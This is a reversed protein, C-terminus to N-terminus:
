SSSSTGVGAPLRASSNRLRVPQTGHGSSTELVLVMVRDELITTYSINTKLTIVVRFRNGQQLFDASQVNGLDIDQRTKGSANVTNQLDIALRPPNFATYTLPPVTLPDRLTLKLFVTDGQQSAGMSVFANSAEASQMAIPAAPPSSGACGFMGGAMALPILFLLGEVRLTVGKSQSGM